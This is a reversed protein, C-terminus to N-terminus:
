EEVNAECDEGVATEEEYLAQDWDVESEELAKKLTENYEESNLYEEGKEQLKRYKKVINQNLKGEMQASLLIFSYAMAIQAEKDDIDMNALKEYNDTLYDVMFEYEADTFEPEQDSDKLAEIKKDLDEKNVKSGCSMVGFLLLCVMAVGAMRMIKKM